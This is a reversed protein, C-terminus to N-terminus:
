DNKDGKLEKQKIEKYLYMTPKVICLVIQEVFENPKMPEISTIWRKISCMVADAYFNVQFQTIQETEFIKKLREVLLPYCLSRFYENFSNQGEIQFVKKYFFRDKYFFEVLHELNKLSIYENYTLKEKKLVDLFETKFIWNVLDYKDKFHYYFSKRNMGCNQCIDTITISTFSKKQLLKKFAKAMAKKTINSEAM